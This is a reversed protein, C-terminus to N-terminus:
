QEKESHFYGKLSDVIILSGEKEYKHVDIGPYGSDVPTNIGIDYGRIGSL